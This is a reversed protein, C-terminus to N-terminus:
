LTKKDTDKLFNTTKSNNAFSVKVNRAVKWFLIDYLFKEPAEFLFIKALKM